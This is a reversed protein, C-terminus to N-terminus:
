LLSKLSSLLTKHNRLSSLGHEVHCAWALQLNKQTMGPYKDQLILDTVLQTKGLWTFKDLVLSGDLKLDINPQMTHGAEISNFFAIRSAVNPTIGTLSKFRKLQEEVARNLQMRNPLM